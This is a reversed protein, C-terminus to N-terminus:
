LTSFLIVLKLNIFPFYLILKYFHKLFLNKIPNELRKIQFWWSHKECSLKRHFSPFFYREKTEYTSIFDIKVTYIFFSQLFDIRLWNKGKVSREMELCDWNEFLMRVFITKSSLFSWDCSRYIRYRCHSIL